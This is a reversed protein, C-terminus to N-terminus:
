VRRRMVPRSRPKSQPLLHVSNIFRKSNTNDATAQDSLLACFRKAGTPLQHGTGINIYTPGFIQCFICPGLYETVPPFKNPQRFHIYNHDGGKMIRKCGNRKSSNFGALMHEHFFRGGTRSSFQFRYHSCCFSMADLHMNAEVVTVVM